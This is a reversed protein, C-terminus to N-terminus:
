TNTAKKFWKRSIQMNENILLVDLFNLSNDNQIEHTFKLNSDFTNFIKIANEVNIESSFIIFIDDAFRYYFVHQVNINNHVYTKEFNNLYIEALIPVLPSGMSLGDLQKYYNDNFSFTLNTTCIELLEKIDKKLLKGNFEDFLIETALDISKKLPVSPYLNEIDMTCMKCNPPIKFNKIKNVFDFTGKSCTFVKKSLIKSFEKALNSCFSNYSSVIPRFKLNNEFNPKHIKPLFYM